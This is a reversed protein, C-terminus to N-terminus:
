PRPAEEPILDAPMEGSAIARLGGEVFVSAFHRLHNRAIALTGELEAEAAPGYQALVAAALISAHATEIIVLTATMVSDPTIAKAKDTIVSVVAQAAELMRTAEDETPNRADDSV